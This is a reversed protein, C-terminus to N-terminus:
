EFNISFSSFTQEYIVKKKKLQNLIQLYIESFKEDNKLKQKMEFGVYIKSVKPASRKKKKIKQNNTPLFPFLAISSRLEQTGLFQRQM